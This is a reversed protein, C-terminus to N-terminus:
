TRVPQRTRAPRAAPLAQALYADILGRAQGADLRQDLHASRLWLGDILAAATTAIIRAQEPQVLQRLPQLLNTYTRRTYVDRLRALEKDHASQAFFALWASVVAPQFQSHDFNADMVARLREKPDHLEELRAVLDRRLLVLLWRMTTTLLDDKGRFYHHVIGTSVGAEAAIRQVTTEHLGHRHITRITADMLQQRRLPQMGLKPM